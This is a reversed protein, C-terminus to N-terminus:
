RRSQSRPADVARWAAYPQLGRSPLRWVSQGEDFYAACWKSIEDVMFATRSAQRDGAALTDLVEAVTAVVASRGTRIPM